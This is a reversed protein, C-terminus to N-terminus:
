LPVRDLVFITPHVNSSTLERLWVYVPRTNGEEAEINHEKLRLERRKHTKGIYKLCSDRPDLLGYILHRSPRANM